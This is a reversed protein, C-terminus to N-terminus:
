PRVGKEDLEKLRAAQAHLVEAAALTMADANPKFTGKVSKGLALTTEKLKTLGVIYAAIDAVEVAVAAAAATTEVITGVTTEGGISLAVLGADKVLTVARYLGENTERWASVASMHATLEAEGDLFQGTRRSLNLTDQAVSASKVALSLAVARDVCGLDNALEIHGTLRTPMSQGNVTASTSAQPPQAFTPPGSNSDLVAAEQVGFAVQRGDSWAAKTRQAELLNRCLDMGNARTRPAFNSDEKSLWNLPDAPWQPHSPVVTLAKPVVYNMPADLELGLRDSPLRGQRYDAGWAAATALSPQPLAFYVYSWGTLADSAKSMRDQSEEDTIVTAARGMLDNVALATLALLSVSVATEVLTWGRARHSRARARHPRQFSTMM